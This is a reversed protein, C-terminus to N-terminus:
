WCNMRWHCELSCQPRLELCVPNGSSLWQFVVPEPYPVLDAKYNAKTLSIPFCYIKCYCFVRIRDDRLFCLKVFKWSIATIRKICDILMFVFFFNLPFQVWRFTMFHFTEVFFHVNPIWTRKRLSSKKCSVNPIYSQILHWKVNCHRWLSLSPEWIM